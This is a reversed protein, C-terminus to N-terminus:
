QKSRAIVSGNVLDPGAQDSGKGAVFWACSGTLIISGEKGM